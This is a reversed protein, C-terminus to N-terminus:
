PYWATDIVKEEQLRPSVKIDYLSLFIKAILKCGYVVCLSEYHSILISNGHSFQLVSKIESHSKWFRWNNYHVTVIYAVPSECLAFNRNIRKKQSM